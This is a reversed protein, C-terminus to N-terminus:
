QLNFETMTQKILCFAAYSIRMLSQLESTQEESRQFPELRAGAQRAGRDGRRQFLRLRVAPQLEVAFVHPRRRQPAAEAVVHDRQEEVGSAPFRWRRGRGAAAPRIGVRFGYAPGVAAPTSLLMCPLVISDM